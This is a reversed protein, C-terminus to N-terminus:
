VLHGAFVSNKWFSPFVCQAFAHSYRTWISMRDAALPISHFVVTRIRYPTLTCEPVVQSFGAHIHDDSQIGFPDDDNTEREKRRKFFRM